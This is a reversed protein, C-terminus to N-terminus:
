VVSLIIVTTGPPLWSYPRTATSFLFVIKRPLPPSSLVVNLEFSPHSIENENCSERGSWVVLQLLCREVTAFTQCASREAFILVVCRDRTGVTGGEGSIKM